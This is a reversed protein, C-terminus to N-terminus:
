EDDGSEEAAGPEKDASGEEAAEAEAELEEDQEPWSISAIVTEPDAVLTTNGPLEVDSALVKSDAELGEVSVPLEDPIDLVDAEVLLVDADQLVVTGPFPEGELVLPVEVEVKEGRTIALLDIHDIDLSLVNQEISKVMTLYNEGGVELDVIANVGNDRVLQEIELLDIAFHVPKELSGSYIVGPVKWQRRLRRAAGKGFETREEAKLTPYKKAM